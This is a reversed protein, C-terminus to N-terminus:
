EPTETTAPKSAARGRGAAARRQDLLKKQADTLVNECETMMTAEAAEIQLRLEEIKTLHKEKISYIQERQDPTLGIQAFYPPVRRAPNYTRRVPPTSEEATTSGSEQAVLSVTGLTLMAALGLGALGFRGRTLM